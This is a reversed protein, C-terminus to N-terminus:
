IKLEKYLNMNELIIKKSMMVLSAARLLMENKRVLGLMSRKMLMGQKGAM